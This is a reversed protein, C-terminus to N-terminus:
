SGSPLFRVADQLAQLLGERDRALSRPGDVRVLTVQDGRYIALLRLLRTGPGPVSRVVASRVLAPCGAVLEWSEGLPEAIEEGALAEDLLAAVGREPVAHLSARVSTRPTERGVCLESGTDTEVRWGEPLGLILGLPASSAAAPFESRAPAGGRFRASALSADFPGLLPDLAGIPASLVLVLATRDRALYVMCTDFRPGRYERRVCWMRDVYVRTSRLLRAEGPEGATQRALAAEVDGPEVRGPTGVLRIEADGMAFRALTLSGRHDTRVFGPPPMYLFGASPEVFPLGSATETTALVLLGDPRLLSRHLVGSSDPPLSIEPSPERAVAQRLVPTYGARWVLLDLAGEGAPERLSFRGDGDTTGVAFGASADVPARASLEDRGDPCARLALDRGLIVTAGPLPRELLVGDEVVSAHVAGNWIPLLESPPQALCGYLLALALCHM